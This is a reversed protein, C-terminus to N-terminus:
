QGAPQPATQSGRALNGPSSPSPAASGGQDRSANGMGLMAARNQQRMTEKVFEEDQLREHQARLNKAAQQVLAPQMEFERTKMWNELVDIQVVHNDYDEAMPLGPVMGELEMPISEGDSRGMLVMMEMSRMSGEDPEWGGLAMLKAIARHARDVDRELSDLLYSMQGTEIVAMAQDGRIWGREAYGMVRAEMEERTRPTVSSESVRVTGIPGLKQGVFDPILDV